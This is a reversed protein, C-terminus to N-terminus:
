EVELLPLIAGFDVGHVNFPSLTYSIFATTFKRKNFEAEFKGYSNTIMTVLENRDVNDTLDIVYSDEAIYNLYIKDNVKVLTSFRCSLGKKNGKRKKMVEFSTSNAVRDKEKDVVGPDLYIWEVLVLPTQEIM